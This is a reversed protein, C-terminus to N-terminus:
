SETQLLGKSPGFTDFWVMVKQKEVSTSTLMACVSIEQLAKLVTDIWVDIRRHIHVCVCVCVCV